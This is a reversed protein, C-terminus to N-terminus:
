SKSVNGPKLQITKGKETILTITSYTGDSNKTGSVFIGKLNKSKKMDFVQVKDGKKIPHPDKSVNMKGSGDGSPEYMRKATGMGLLKVNFSPTHWSQASVSEEAGIGSQTIFASNELLENYEEFNKYM